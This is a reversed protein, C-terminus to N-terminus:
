SALNVIVGVVVIVGAVIAFKHLKPANIFYTKITNITNM